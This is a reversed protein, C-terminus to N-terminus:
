LKAHKRDGNSLIDIVTLGGDDMAIGHFVDIRCGIAFELVISLLEGFCPGIVLFVRQIDLFFLFPAIRKPAIPIGRADYVSSPLPGHLGGKVCLLSLRIARDGIAFLITPLCRESANASASGANGGFTAMPDVRHPCRRHGLGRKGFGYQNTRSLSQRINRQSHIGLWLSLVYICVFFICCVCICICICCIIYICM